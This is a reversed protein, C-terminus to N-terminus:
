KEGNQLSSFGLISVSAFITDPSLGSRRASPALKESRRWMAPSFSSRERPVVKTLASIGSLLARGDDSVECLSCRRIGDCQPNLNWCSNWCINPGYCVSVYVHGAHFSSILEVFICIKEEKIRNMSWSQGGCVYARLLAAFSSSKKLLEKWKGKPLNEERGSAVARVWGPNKNRQDSPGGLAGM